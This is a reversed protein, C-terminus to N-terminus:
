QIDREAIAATQKDKRQLILATLTTKFGKSGVRSVAYMLSMM